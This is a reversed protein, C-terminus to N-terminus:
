LFMDELEIELTSFLLSLSEELQIDEREYCSLYAKLEDKFENETRNKQAIAWLHSVLWILDSTSMDKLKSVELNKM